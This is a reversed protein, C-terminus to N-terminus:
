CCRCDMKNDGNRDGVVEGDLNKIDSIGELISELGGGLTFINAEWVLVDRPELEAERNDM